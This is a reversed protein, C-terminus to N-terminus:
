GSQGLLNRLTVIGLPIDTNKAVLGADIGAQNLAILTERITTEPDFILPKRHSLSRLPIEGIGLDSHLSHFYRSLEIDCKATKDSNNDM